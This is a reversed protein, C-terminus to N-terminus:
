GAGCEPRFTAQLGRDEGKGALHAKTIQKKGYKVHLLSITYQQSCLVPKSKSLDPGYVGQQENASQGPTKSEETLYLDNCM